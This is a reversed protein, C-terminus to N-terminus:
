MLGVVGRRVLNAGVVILTILMVKRFRVQDLRDQVKVGLWMGVVMAPLTAISLPITQHNLVGSRLHAFFLVVAGALYVVGQVAIARQKTAGIAALYAVTPPGWVGAIGGSFGAVSGILVDALRRKGAPIAPIWGVLMVTAFVTIPLGLCVFLVPQSLKGVLQASLAIVVLLVGIYWRFDRLVNLANGIGGRFAQWFNSLLTPLILAALAQEAPLFVSLGSVMIMPMAFGVAGKVFSAVLTVAVVGLVVQSSLLSLDM